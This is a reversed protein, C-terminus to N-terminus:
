EVTKSFPLKWFLMILLLAHIGGTQKGVDETVVYKLFFFCILYFVFTKPWYFCVIQRAFLWPKWLRPKDPIREQQSCKQASTGLHKHFKQDQAVHFSFITVNLAKLGSFLRSPNHLWGRPGIHFMGTQSNRPYCILFNTSFRETGDRFELNM